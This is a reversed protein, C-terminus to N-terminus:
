DYIAEVWWHGATLALLWADSEGALQFRAQRRHATDDWWREDVPWPGAWALVQVWPAAAVSLRAPPASLEGRGSVAVPEGAADLVEAPLPATPV